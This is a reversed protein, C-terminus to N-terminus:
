ELQLGHLALAVVLDADDSAFETVHINEPHAHEFVAWNQLDDGHKSLYALGNWRRRGDVTQEFVYRSVEQTFARPATLRIAAGDLDHLGHHVVRAALESRLRALSEHHGIDVHDGVLTGRGVCRREIWGAPVLGAGPPEEDGDDGVIARMGAIVGIDPRFYALCEVFTAVRQTSAYLM